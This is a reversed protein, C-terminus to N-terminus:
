RRQIRSAAANTTVPRVDNDNLGTQSGSVDPAFSVPIPTRCSRRPVAQYWQSGQIRRTRVRYLGNSRLTRFKRPGESM